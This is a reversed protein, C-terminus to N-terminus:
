RTNAHTVLDHIMKSIIRETISRSELRMWCRKCACIRDDLVKDIVIDHLMHLFHLFHNLILHLLQNIVVLVHRNSLSSDIAHTAANVQHIRVCHVYQAARILLMWEAHFQLLVKIFISDNRNDFPRNNM